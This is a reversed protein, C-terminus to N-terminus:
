RGKVTKDTEYQIYETLSSQLWRHLRSHKQFSFTYGDDCLVDAEKSEDCLKAVVKAFADCLSQLRKIEETAKHYDCYDTHGYPIEGDCVRCAGMHDLWSGNPRDEFPTPTNM